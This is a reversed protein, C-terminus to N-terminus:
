VTTEMKKERIGFYLHHVIHYNGFYPSGLISGLISNDKNKPDGFHDGLNLSIGMYRRPGWLLSSTEVELERSAGALLPREACDLGYPTLLAINSLM